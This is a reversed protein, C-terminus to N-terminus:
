FYDGRMHRLLKATVSFSVCVVVKGPAVDRVVHTRIRCQYDEDLEAQRGTSGEATPRPLLNHAIWDVAVAEVSRDDTERAFTYVHFRTSHDEPTWWRLAGLFQPAELPFNMVVHDPRRAVSASSMPRRRRRGSRRLTSLPPPSTASPVTTTALAWGAGLDMLCNYADQTTVRTLQEDTVGNALANARLAATAHPNWDNAWVEVRDGHEAQLAAQLLLAGVGCFVDALVIAKRCHLNEQEHTIAFIEEKLLRQREESLRSCWYVNQLDFQLSVGSETLHVQTCNRGALLEYDFTRYPGTVEGVKQIVTEVIPLTELLVEGILFRYPLHPARLNLHAVHGVMEFATPVPHVEVPLLQNLLFSATFQHYQFSVPFSTDADRCNQNALFARVPEPLTSIRPTDPHLLIMKHSHNSPTSDGEAEGNAAICNRVVKFRVHLHDLISLQSALFPQTLPSRLISQINPGPCEWAPFAITPNCHPNQRWTAVLFAIDTESAPTNTQQSSLVGEKEEFISVDEPTGHTLADVGHDPVVCATTRHHPPGFRRRRAHRSTSTRRWSPAFASRYCWLGKTTPILLAMGVSAVRRM